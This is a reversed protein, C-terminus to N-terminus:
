KICLKEEKKNNDYLYETIITTPTPENVKQPICAHIEQIFMKKGEKNCWFGYFIVKRHQFQMKMMENQAIM